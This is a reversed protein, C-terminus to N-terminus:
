GACTLSVVCQRLCVSPQDVFTPIAVSRTLDLMLYVYLWPQQMARIRRVEMAERESQHHLKHAKMSAEWAALKVATQSQLAKTKRLEVCISCLGWESGVNFCATVTNFQCTASVSLRSSIRFDNECLKEFRQFARSHTRDGLLKTKKGSYICRLCCIPCTWTRPCAYKAMQWFRRMRHLHLLIFQLFALGESFRSRILGLHLGAWCTRM